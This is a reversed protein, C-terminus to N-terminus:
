PSGPPIVEVPGAQQARERIREDPDEDAMPTSIHAFVSVAVAAAIGIAAVVLGADLLGAWGGEPRVGLVVLATVAVVFGVLSFLRHQEPPPHPRGGHALTWLAVIGAGWALSVLIAGLVDSPRHWSAVLTAAATVTVAGTALASVVTRAASPTVLLAALSVSVIVTAHGSPFSAVTLMGFDEREIARKLLQTTVNAGLVLAVAAAAAEYRRRSLAVLVLGLVALAITGVSVAGLWGLLRRTTEADGVVLDMGAQDVLQGLETTQSREALWGLALGSVLLVTLSELATQWRTWWRSAAASAGAVTESRGVGTV